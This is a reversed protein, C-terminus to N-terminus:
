AAGGRLAARLRPIRQALELAMEVPSLGSAASLVCDPNMPEHWPIDVGVVNPIRGALSGAYLGKSDRAQLLELPAQLYVEFYDELTRRNEALLEPHSYLAAVVVIQGQAAVFKALSRLRTIQTIRSPESFDLDHGYLERVADGDLLFLEPARPKILQHLATSLTTKGSGSLGTIWIVM